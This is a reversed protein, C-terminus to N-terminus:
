NNNEKIKNIFSNIMKGIEQIELELYNILEFNSSLALEKSLIVQTDLEYLSGRAIKLYNIFSVNSRGFGEAINSSISVSCRKMQNTIGYMEENPFTSTLEYVSKCLLIGRQWIQLDRYTKVIGM